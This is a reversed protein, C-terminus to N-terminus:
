GYPNQKHDDVVVQGNVRVYNANLGDNSVLHDHQQGHFNDLQEIRQGVQKVETHRGNVDVREWGM